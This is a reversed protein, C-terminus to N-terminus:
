DLITELLTVYVKDSKPIIKFSESIGEEIEINLATYPDCGVNSMTDYLHNDVESIADELSSVEVDYTDNVSKIIDKISETTNKIEISYDGGTVSYVFSFDDLLHHMRENFLWDFAEQGDGMDEYLVSFEESLANIADENTLYADKTIGDKMFIVSVIDKIDAVEKLNQKEISGTYFGQSTVVEVKVTNGESLVTAVGEVKLLEGNNLIIRQNNVKYVM